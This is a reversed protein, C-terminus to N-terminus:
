ILGGERSTLRRKFAENQRGDYLPRPLPRTLQGHEAMHHAMVARNNM